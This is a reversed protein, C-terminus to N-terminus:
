LQTALIPPIRETGIWSENNNVPTIKFKGTLWKLRCYSKYHLTHRYETWMKLKISCLEEATFVRLTSHTRARAYTHTFPVTTPTLRCTATQKLIQITSTFIRSDFGPSLQDKTSMSAWIQNAAWRWKYNCTICPPLQQYCVYWTVTAPDGSTGSAWHHMNTTMLFFHGMLWKSTNERFSCIYNVFM